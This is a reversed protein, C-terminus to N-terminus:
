KRKGKIEKANEIEKTKVIKKDMKKMIVTQTVQILNNVIWYLVLAAKLKWSVYIMFFGMSINMIKTQRAQAPDANNTPMSFYGSVFTTLGSLVALVPNSGGLDIGIFKVGQLGTMTSFVFYLAIFIPWQILMPLCGSFPSAGKEKYLKMMEEQSKQPDNKYKEQLKKVDPQIESMVLTSRTQKITLPLLVIRIIITVLIIALGYSLGKDPIFSNLMAHVANFFQLFAEKIYSL